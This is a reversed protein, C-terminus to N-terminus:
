NKDIDGIFREPRNSRSYAARIERGPNASKERFMVEGDERADCYSACIEMARELLEGSIGRPVMCHPGRVRKPVFMIYKGGDLSRLINNDKENRGIIVKNKQDLGVHRGVKLLEIDHISPKGERRLLDKLRASFCPDTLLCGGAPTPVDKIGYQAAMELQRKRQRGSIDLLRSRDIKGEKEIKTEPLLKASLPRLVYDAYGSEKAVTHLSQKNQSMPREGLVEGTFIFDFGEKRMIGGAIKLMLAHCDICPNMGSGYGHKPNLLMDLHEGTIDKVIIPVKLSTAAKKANEANFFPSVFSISTVEIEQEQLVL